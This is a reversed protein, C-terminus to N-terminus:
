YRIGHEFSHTIWGSVEWDVLSNDEAVAAAPQSSQQTHGREQGHPPHITIAPNHASTHSHEPRRRSYGLVVPHQSSLSAAHTSSARVHDDDGDGYQTLSSRGISVGGESHRQPRFPVPYRLSGGSKGGYFGEPTDGSPQSLAGGVNPTEDWSAGSSKRRFIKRSSSSHIATTGYSSMQSMGGPVIGQMYMPGAGEQGGVMDPPQSLVADERGYGGRAKPLGRPDGIAQPRKQLTNLYSHDYQHYEPMLQQQSGYMTHRKRSAVPQEAGAMGREGGVAGKTIQSTPTISLSSRSRSKNSRSLSNFSYKQHSAQSGLIHQPNAPDRQLIMHVTNPSNRNNSFFISSGIGGFKRDQWAWKSFWKWWRKERQMGSM